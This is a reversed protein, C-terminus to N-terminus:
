THVHRIHIPELGEVSGAALCGIVQILCGIMCHAPFPNPAPRGDSVQPGCIPILFSLRDATDRGVKVAAGERGPAQLWPHVQLPGATVESQVWEVPERVRGAPTARASVLMPLGVDTRGLCARAGARPTPWAFSTRITESGAQSSKGCRRRCAILHVESLSHRLAPLLKPQCIPPRVAM